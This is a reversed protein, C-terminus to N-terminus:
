AAARLYKMAIQAVVNRTPLALFKILAGLGINASYDIRQLSRVIPPDFNGVFLRAPRQPWFKTCNAILSIIWKRPVLARSGILGHSQRTVDVTWAVVKHM